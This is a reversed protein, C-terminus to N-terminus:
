RVPRVPGSAAKGSAPGGAIERVLKAKVARGFDEFSHAPVMFAGPGGIVNREYYLDLDPPTWGGASLGQPRGDAQESGPMVPLGNITIGRAVADDRAARVDRGGNNVGDGSVDIVRRIGDFGNPEFLTAGFDIAGSISTGRASRFPAEKVLDVFELASAEDAIVRWPVVTRQTAPGAWEVYTVVIRGLFGGRIVHIIEPDTLAAVYGDRQLRAESPDVSGSVDVALVLELDVPVEAGAPSAAQAAARGTAATLFAVALLVFRM